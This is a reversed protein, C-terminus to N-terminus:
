LNEDGSLNLLPNFQHLNDIDTCKVRWFAAAHFGIDPLLERDSGTEAMFDHDDNGADTMAHFMKTRAGPDNGNRALFERQIAAIMIKIIGIFDM